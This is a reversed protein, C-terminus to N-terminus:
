PITIEKIATNQFAYDGITKLGENLTINELLYCEAFAGRSIETVKSPINFSTLSSCGYFAGEGISTITNPLSVEKLSSLNVFNYKGISTIGNGIVIKTISTDGGWPVNNSNDYDPLKGTGSFTLVGNQTTATITNTVNYTQNLSRIDNSFLSISNSTNELKYGNNSVEELTNGIYFNGNETEIVDENALSSNVFFMFSLILILCIIKFIKFSKSM